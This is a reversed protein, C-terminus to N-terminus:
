QASGELWAALALRSAESSPRKEISQARFMGVDADPKGLLDRTLKGTRFAALMADLEIQLQEPGFKAIIDNARRVEASVKRTVERRAEIDAETAKVSPSSEVIGALRQARSALANPSPRYAEVGLDLRHLEVAKQCATLPLGDCAQCALRVDADPADPFHAQITKALELKETATM